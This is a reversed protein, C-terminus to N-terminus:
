STLLFISTKLPDQLIVVLLFNCLFWLFLWILRWLFSRTFLLFLSCYFSLPSSYFSLIDRLYCVILYVKVFIFTYWQHLTFLCVVFTSICWCLYQYGLSDLLCTCLSLCVSVFEEGTHIRIHVTLNASQTFKKGCYQCEYPREGTHVRLHLQLEDTRAFRKSCHSCKFPKEGTHSRVHRTIHSLWGFSMDCYPCQYVNKWNRKQVEGANTVKTAKVAKTKQRAGRRPGRKAKKLAKIPCM